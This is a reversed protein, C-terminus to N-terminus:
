SRVRRADHVLNHWVLREHQTNDFSFYITRVKQLPKSAKGRLLTVTDEDFEPGWISFFRVSLAPQPRPGYLVCGEQVAQLTTANFFQYLYYGPAEEVMVVHDGLPVQWYQAPQFLVVTERNKLSFEGSAFLPVRQDKKLPAVDGQPLNPNGDAVFRFYGARRAHWYSYQVWLFFLLTIVLAPRGWSGLWAWVSLVVAGLRILSSLRIGLIKRRRTERALWYIYGLYTYYIRKIFSKNEM